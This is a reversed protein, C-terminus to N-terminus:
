ARDVLTIIALGLADQSLDEMHGVVKGNASAEVDYDGDHNLRVTLTLTRGAHCVMLGDELRANRIGAQRTVMPGIATLIGPLYNIPVTNDTDKSLPTHM